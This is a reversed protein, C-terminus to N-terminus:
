SSLVGGRMTGLLYFSAAGWLKLFDGVTLIELIDKSAFFLFTFFRVDLFTM